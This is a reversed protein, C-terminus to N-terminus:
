IKWLEHINLDGSLIFRIANVISLHIDSMHSLNYNVLMILILNADILTCYGKGIMFIITKLRSIFRTLLTQLQYM